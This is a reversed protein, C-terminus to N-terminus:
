EGHSLLNENNAKEILYNTFASCSVLFFRADESKLNEDDMLAHRIGNKGNSYAYLKELAVKFTQNIRGNKELKNLAKGLTNESPEIIRCIVEVMSISEKISNRFDPKPKKSILDLASNLHQQIGSLNNKHSATRVNEIEDIETQNTIPVFKYNVIRYGSHNLILKDDVYNVFNAVEYYNSDIINAFVFEYFEYVKYWTEKLIYNRVLGSLEYDRNSFEDYPKRFFHIWALKYVVRYSDKGYETKELPSHIFLFFANWLDVRLNNDINDVQFPIETPEFGYRQSFPLNNKDITMLTAALTWANFRNPFAIGDGM